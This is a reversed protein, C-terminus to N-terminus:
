DIEDVGDAFTPLKLVEFHIQTKSYNQAILLEHVRQKEIEERQKEAEHLLKLKTM